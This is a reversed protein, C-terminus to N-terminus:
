YYTVVCYRLIEVKIISRLINEKYKEKIKDLKEKPMSTLNYHDNLRSQSEGIMEPLNKVIPFIYPFLTQHKNFKEGMEGNHYKFNLKYTYFQRPGLEKLAQDKSQDKTKRLTVQILEQPKIGESLSEELRIQLLGASILTIQSLYKGDENYLAEVTNKDTTYVYIVNKPNEKTENPRLLETRM